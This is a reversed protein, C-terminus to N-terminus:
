CHTFNIWGNIYNTVTLVCNSPLLCSATWVEGEAPLGSRFGVTQIFRLLPATPPGLSRALCGSSASWPGNNKSPGPNTEKIRMRTPSRIWLESGDAGSDVRGVPSCSKWSAHIWFVCLALLLHEVMSCSKFINFNGVTFKGVGCRWRLSLSQHNVCLCWVGDFRSSIGVATEEGDTVRMRSWCSSHHTILSRQGVDPLVRSCEVRSSERSRASPFVINVCVYFFFFSPQARHYVTSSTRMVRPLWKGTWTLTQPRWRKFIMM